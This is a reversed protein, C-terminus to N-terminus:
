KLRLCRYPTRVQHVRLEHVRVALRCVCVCMCVCVRVFAIASKRSQKSCIFRTYFHFSLPLNGKNISKSPCLQESYRINNQPTYLITQSQRLEYISYRKGNVFEWQQRRILILKTKTKNKTKNEMHKIKWQTYQRIRLHGFVLTM